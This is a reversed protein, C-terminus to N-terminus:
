NGNDQEKSKTNFIGAAIEDLKQAWTLRDDKSDPDLGARQMATRTHYEKREEHHKRMSDKYQNKVYDTSQRLHAYAGELLGVREFLSSMVCIQEALVRQGDVMYAIDYAFRAIEAEMAMRPYQPNPSGDERTRNKEAIKRKEIWDEALQKRDGYKGKILELNAEDQMTWLSDKYNEPNLHDRSM